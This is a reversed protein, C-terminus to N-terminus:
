LDRYRRLQLQQGSCLARQTRRRAIRELERLAVRAGIRIPLEELLAFLDRDGREESEAFGRGGSRACAAEERAVGVREGCWADGVEELVGRSAEAIAGAAGECAM